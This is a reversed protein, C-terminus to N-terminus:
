ITKILKVTFKKNKFDTIAEVKRNESFPKIFNEYTFFVGDYALGEDRIPFTIEELNEPEFNWFSLKGKVNLIPYDYKKANALVWHFADKEAWISQSNKVCDIIDVQGIIASVELRNTTYKETIWRDINGKEHKKIEELQERSFMSVAKARDHWKASAHILVTGRFKTNYSRNEVDKVGEAILSAYPQKISLAKM